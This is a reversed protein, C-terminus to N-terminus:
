LAALREVADYVGAIAVPEALSEIRSRAITSQMPLNREAVPYFLWQDPLRHDAAIQDTVPHWAFVYISANRGAAKIRTAGEWHVKRPAIDFRGAGPKSTEANWSQLAASQKVELRVGDASEFDHLAWDESCWRWGPELVQALMAEVLMGRFANTVLPRGLLTTLIRRELDVNM